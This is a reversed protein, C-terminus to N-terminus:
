AAEAAMAAKRQKRGKAVQRAWRAQAKDDTVDFTGSWSMHRTVDRGVPVVRSGGERMPIQVRMGAITYMDRARMREIWAVQAPRLGESRLANSVLKRASEVTHREDPEFGFRAWTYGGNYRGGGAAYVKVKDVGMKKYSQMAKGLMAGAIGKGRDSATVTFDDHDVVVEGDELSMTRTMEGAYGGNENYVNYKVYLSKRGPDVQLSQLRCDVGHEPDSFMTKLEDPGPARDGFILKLTRGIYAGSSLTVRRGESDSGMDAERWAQDFDDGTLRRTKRAKGSRGGVERYVKKGKDTYYFRGGKPGTQMVYAALEILSRFREALTEAELAEGLLRKLM